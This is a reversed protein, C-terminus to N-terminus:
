NEKKVRQTSPEENPTRVLIITKAILLLIAVTAPIMTFKPNRLMYQMQIVTAQWLIGSICGFISVDRPGSIILLGALGEIVAAVKMFYEPDVKKKFFQTPPSM